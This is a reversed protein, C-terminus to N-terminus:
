EIFDGKAKDASYKNVDEILMEWMDTQNKSLEIAMKSTDSLYSLSADFSKDGRAQRIQAINQAVDAIMNSFVGRGIHTSWKKSRLDVAIEKMVLDNSKKLRQLFKDKLKEFYYRYSNDTMPLGRKNLFLADQNPNYLNSSIHNKYLRELLGAKYPYVIQNRPRKVAGGSSSHKLDNRFRNNKLKIVIGYRGFPGKLKISSKAINVVEGTRLGGFFQFYVGLAINPTYLIATDILLVVLEFPLNHLINKLKEEPYNVGKFPSELVSSGDENVAYDFDDVSVYKLTKEKALFFYFEKLVEECALVTELAVGSKSYQNLYLIGHEFNLDWVDEINFIQGNEIIAYNLFKVIHSAKTKLSNIKLKTHRKSPRLLFESVPHVKHTVSNGKRREVMILVDENYVIEGNIKSRETKCTEQVFRYSTRVQSIDTVIDVLTLDTVM